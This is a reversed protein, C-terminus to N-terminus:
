RAPAPAGDTTAAAPAPADPQREPLAAAIEPLARAAADVAELRELGTMDLGWRRANVMQGVLCLDAQTLAAGFCFRGEPAISDRFAALGGAMWHHMWDRVGAEDQGLGRLRQLVRLNNVPHIDAAIIQAAARVRARAEPDQPLLPPSPHSEELWDLIAMSQSLMQGGPLALVPVAMAPNRAAHEPARQAGQLLNVPRCEYALGKLNLAARVRLAATSRWYDYLIV